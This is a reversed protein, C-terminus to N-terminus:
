HTSQLIPELQSLHAIKHQPLYAKERTFDQRHINQGDDLLCVTTWGLKNPAIFDKAVNDSIYFYHKTGLEHFVEFNRESPKESGFEESVVIRDFLHGIDLANIKNRQTISFGDTVLGLFHGQAKLRILLERSESLPDFKPVHNRYIAKLDEKVVHPYRQVVHGFVDQKGQYWGFMEDFLGNCTSDVHAAIEGFASKLYDIEKVLTDDLDFVITHRVTSM